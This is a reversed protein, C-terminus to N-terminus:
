NKKSFIRMASFLKSSWNQATKSRTCRCKKKQRFNRIKIILYIELWRMQRFFSVSSAELRRDLISNNCPLGWNMPICFHSKVFILIRSMEITCGLMPMYVSVLSVLTLIGLPTGINFISPSSFLFDITYPLRIILLRAALAYFNRWWRSMLFTSTSLDSDWKYKNCFYHTSISEYEM